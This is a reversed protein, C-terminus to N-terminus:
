STAARRSATLRQPNELREVLQRVEPALDDFSRARQAADVVQSREDPTAGGVDLARALRRSLDPKV